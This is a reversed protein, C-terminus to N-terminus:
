AYRTETLEIRVVALNSPTLLHLSHSTRRDEYRRPIRQLLQGVTELGAAQLAKQERPSIGALSALPSEPLLSESM